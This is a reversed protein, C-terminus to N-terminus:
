REDISTLERDEEGVYRARPWILRDVLVKQAATARPARERPLLEPLLV